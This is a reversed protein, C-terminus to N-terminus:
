FQILALHYNLIKTTCEKILSKLNFADCSVFLYSDGISINFNRLFIFNDYRPLHLTPNKILSEIHTHIQSKKPNYFGKLLSKKRLLNIEVLFVDVYNEVAILKLPIDLRVCLM